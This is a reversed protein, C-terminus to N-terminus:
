KKQSKHYIVIIVRDLYLRLYSISVQISNASPRHANAVGTFAM